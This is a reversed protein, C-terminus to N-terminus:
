PELPESQEVNSEHILRVVRSGQDTYVVRYHRMWPLLEIDWRKAGKEGATLSTGGMTGPLEIIKPFWLVRIPIPQPGGSDLRPPALKDTAPKKPSETTM